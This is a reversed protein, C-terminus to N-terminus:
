SVLCRWDRWTVYFHPGMACDTLADSEYNM